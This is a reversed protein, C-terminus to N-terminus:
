VIDKPDVTTTKGKPLGNKIVGCYGCDPCVCHIEGDIHGEDEVIFLAGCIPCNMLLTM